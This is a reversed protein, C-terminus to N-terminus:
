QTDVQDPSAQSTPAPMPGLRSFVPARASPVDFPTDPPPTLAPPGVTETQSPQHFQQAAVAALPSVAAM